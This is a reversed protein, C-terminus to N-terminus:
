QGRRVQQNDIAVQDGDGPIDLWIYGTGVNSAEYDFPDEIEFEPFLIIAQDVATSFVTQNQHAAEFTVALSGDADESLQHRFTYWGADEVSYGEAGGIKLDGNEAAVPMMLYRLSAATKEFREELDFEGDRIDLLSIALVYDFETPDDADPDLYVDLKTVYGSAPWASSYGAGPSYPGSILDDPSFENCTGGTAVAYGRGVSPSLDGDRRDIQETTGCWGSGGETESGIWSEADHNFIQRWTPFDAASNTMTSAESGREASSLTAEDPGFLNGDCATILFTLAIGLALVIPLRKM